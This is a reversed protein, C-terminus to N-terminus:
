RTPTNGNFHGKVSAFSRLTAYAAVDGRLQGPRHVHSSSKATWELEWREACPGAHGGGKGRDSGDRDDQAHDSDNGSNNKSDGNEKRRQDHEKGWKGLPLMVGYSITDHQKSFVSYVIFRFSHKTSATHLLISPSFPVFQVEIKEM